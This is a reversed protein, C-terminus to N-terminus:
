YLGRGTRSHQYNILPRILLRRPYNRLKKKADRLVGWGAKKTFRNRMRRDCDWRGMSESPIDVSPLPLRETKTECWELDRIEVSKMFRTRIRRDCEWQGMAEFLTDVSPSPLTEVEAQMERGRSMGWGKMFRNRMRRHLDWRGMMRLRNTWSIGLRYLSDLKSFHNQVKFISTDRKRAPM